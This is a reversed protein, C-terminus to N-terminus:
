LNIQALIISVLIPTAIAGVLWWKAKDLGKVIKEVNRELNKVIEQFGRDNIKLVSVEEKLKDIDISHKEQTNEISKFRDEKNCTEM